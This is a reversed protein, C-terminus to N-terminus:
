RQDARRLEAELVVEIEELPHLRGRDIGECGPKIEKWGRANMHDPWWPWTRCQQPRAAYVSCRKGDLFQCDRKPDRLHFWGDTQECHKRTFAATSLGLHQALERREELTVYVYQHKGRSKCCEGCGTCEFRLGNKYFRPDIESM